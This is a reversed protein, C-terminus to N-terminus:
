SGDYYNITGSSTAELSIARAGKKPPVTTAVAVYHGSFPVDLLYQGNSDTVGKHYIENDSSKILYFPAGSAPVNDYDLIVGSLTVLPDDGAASDRIFDSYVGSITSADLITDFVSIQGLSSDHRQSSVLHGVRVSNTLTSSPLATSTAILSGDLYVKSEGIVRDVTIVACHWGVSTGSIDTVVTVNNLLVRLGLGRLTFGNTGTNWIYNNAGDHTISHAYYWLIFSRKLKGSYDGEFRLVEGADYPWNYERQVSSTRPYRVGPRNVMTPLPNAIDPATGILSGSLTTNSIGEIPVNGSFTCFNIEAIKSM